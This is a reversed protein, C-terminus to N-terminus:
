GVEELVRNVWGRLFKIQKPNKAVIGCFRAIRALSFHAVFLDPNSTNLAALTQGGLIGDAKVKLVAQALRAAVGIGSLVACSFLVGAVHDSKVEDLRLPDWYNAKYLDHVSSVPPINGRDIAQWGLWQPHTRQSIGAYTRGGRDDKIDTLRYGGEKEIVAEIHASFASSRKIETKIDAM